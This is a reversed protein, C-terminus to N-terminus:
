NWFDLTSAEDFTIIQDIDAYEGALPELRDKLSCAEAESGKHNADVLALLGLGYLAKERDQCHEIFAAYSVCRQEFSEGPDREYFEPHEIEDRYQLFGSRGWSAKAGCLM